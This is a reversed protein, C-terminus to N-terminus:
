LDTQHTAKLEFLREAVLHFDDQFRQGTAFYGDTVLPRPSLIDQQFASATDLGAPLDSALAAALNAIHLLGLGSEFSSSFVIGIKRQTAIEVWREIQSFGGLMTPKMVLAVYGVTGLPARLEPDSLSEDLAIPMGTREVLDDLEAVEKLPEEIYTFSGAAVRESFRCAAQLDWARNADLRLDMQGGLAARVAGVLEADAEPQRRGVKLKAARYGKQALSSAQKLIEDDTGSLLANVAVGGPAHPNLHRAVSVGERHARIMALACDIGFHVSPFLTYLFRRGAAIRGWQSPNAVVNMCQQATQGPQERSVGPLPAVDGWGAVGDHDVIKLVFGVRTAASGGKVPLAQQLPLEYRYARFDSIEINTSEHM